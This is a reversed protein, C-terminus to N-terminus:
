KGKQFNIIRNIILKDIDSTTVSRCILEKRIIDKHEETYFFIYIM